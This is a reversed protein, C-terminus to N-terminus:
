ETNEVVKDEGNQFNFDESKEWPKYWCRKAMDDAFSDPDELLNVYMENYKDLLSNICGNFGIVSPSYIKHDKSM